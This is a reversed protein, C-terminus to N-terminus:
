YKKLLSSAGTLSLSVGIAFIAASFGKIGFFHSSSSIRSEDESVQLEIYKQIYRLHNDDKIAEIVSTDENKIANEVIDKLSEFNIGDEAEQSM